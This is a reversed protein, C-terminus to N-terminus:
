ALITSHTIMDEELPDEQGVSQVWHRADGADCASKKGSFWQALGWVGRGLYGM